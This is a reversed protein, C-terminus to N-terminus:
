VIGIFNATVNGGTVISDNAFTAQVKVAGQVGDDAVAIDIVKPPTNGLYSM